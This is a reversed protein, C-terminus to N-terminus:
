DKQDNHTQTTAPKNKKKKNQALQQNIEGQLEDIEKLMESIAISNSSRASNDDVNSARKKEEEEPKNGIIDNFQQEM